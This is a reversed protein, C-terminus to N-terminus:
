RSDRHRRSEYRFRSVRNGQERNREVTPCLKKLARNGKRGAAKNEASITQSEYPLVCTTYCDEELVFPPQKWSSCRNLCNLPTYLVHSSESCKSALFTPACGHHTIPTVQGGIVAVKGGHAFLLLSPYIFATIDFFLIIVCVLRVAPLPM